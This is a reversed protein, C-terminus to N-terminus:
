LYDKPSKGTIKRFIQYFYAYNSFGCLEAVEYVKYGGKKLLRISERVRVKNLFSVFTEGTDSRLLRTVHTGTIGIANACDSLSIEEAYHTNLYDIIRATQPSLATNKGSAKEIEAAVERMVAGAEGVSLAGRIDRIFYEADPIGTLNWKNERAIMFMMLIAQTYINKLFVTDAVTDPAEFSALLLNMKERIGPPNSRCAQYLQELLLMRGYDNSVSQSTFSEYQIVRQNELFFRNDRCFHIEECAKGLERLHHHTSSVAIFDSQDRCCHQYLYEALRRSLIQYERITMVSCFSALVLFEGGSIAMLTRVPYLDQMSDAAEEIEREALDVAIRDPQEPVVSFLTYDHVGGQKGIWTGLEAAGRDSGHIADLMSKQAVTKESKERKKRIVEAEPDKEGNGGQKQLVHISAAAKELTATMEEVHIPKLIYDFVKDQIGRRMLEYDDYATLIIFLPKSGLDSLSEIVDLGTLVPMKIDMLAIDPQKERIAQLAEEGNSAEGCIEMGLKKWPIDQIVAKRSLRNDEAIFVKLKDSTM